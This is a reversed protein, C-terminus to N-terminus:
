KGGGRRVAFGMERTARGGMVFRLYQFLCWGNNWQRRGSILENKTDTMNYFYFYDGYTYYPM